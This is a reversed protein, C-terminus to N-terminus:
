PACMGSAPDCQTGPAGFTCGAPCPQGVAVDTCTPATANPCDCCQTAVCRAVEPDCISGPPGPAGPAQLCQSLPVEDACKPVDGGVDCCVLPETCTCDDNCPSGDACPNTDCQEGPDVIKDGCVPEPCTCDTTCVRDGPCAASGPPDCQETSQIVGDGCRADCPFIPSGTLKLFNKRLQECSPRPHVDCDQADCYANCLGFAAGQLDSCVTEQSPPVGDPTKAGAVHPAFALALVALLAAGLRLVCRTPLIIPAM